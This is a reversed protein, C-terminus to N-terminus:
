ELGVIVRIGLTSHGGLQYDPTRTADEDKVQQYRWWALLSIEHLPEWGVEVGGGTETRVPGYLFDMGPLEYQRAVDTFGGQRIREGWARVSVGRRPHWTADAYWQDANQDIAHGLVSLSNRYTQTQVFNSYVWPLIKTYEARVELDRVGLGAAHIGITYGTQNRDNDGKLLSTVSFEDMYFTGHLTLGRMAQWKVDLFFASNGGTEIRGNGEFAHDVSRFFLLPQLFGPHPFRDSYVMSEGISVALTAIPRIRLVHLAVYKERDINRMKGPVQSEYSATSDHVRSLLWGHFYTLSVWDAPEITLMISPFSPSKTSLILQSRFGGGVTMPTKALALSAWGADYVLAGETNDYEWEHEGWKVVLPETATGFRESPDRDRAHTLGERFSVSWGVHRGITGFASAGWTRAYQLDGGRDVVEGDLIPAAHATFLSDEHDLRRWGGATAADVTLESRFWDLEDRERQSLETRHVNVSDLHRLVVRRMLPRMPADEHIIGRAGMEDLFPYVAHRVPVLDAQAWVTLSLAPVLLM